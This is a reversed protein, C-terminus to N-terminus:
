KRKQTFLKRVEQFHGRMYHVAALSLQDEKNESLQQHYQLLKDEDGLKHAAHFLLRTKLPDSDPAKQACQMADEYQGLYYYCCGMYLLTQKHITDNNQDLIEQYVELAKDYDGLHFASYALWLLTTEDVEGARKKFELVAMAGTFDRKRVFEELQKWAM